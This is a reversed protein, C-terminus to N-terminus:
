GPAMRHPECMWGVGGHRLTLFVSNALTVGKVILTEKSALNRANSALLLFM